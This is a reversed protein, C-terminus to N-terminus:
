NDDFGQGKKNLMISKLKLDPLKKTTKLLKSSNRTPGQYSSADTMETLLYPSKTMLTMSELIEPRYSLRQKSLSQPQTQGVHMHSRYNKAIKKDTTLNRQKPLTEVSQELSLSGSHNPVVDISIIHSMQPRDFTSNYIPNMEPGEKTSQTHNTRYQPLKLSKEFPQTGDVFLGQFNSKATPQNFEM